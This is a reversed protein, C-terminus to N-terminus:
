ALNILKIKLVHLQIHMMTKIAQENM